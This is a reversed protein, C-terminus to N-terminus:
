YFNDYKEFKQPKMNGTLLKKKYM